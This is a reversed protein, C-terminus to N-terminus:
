QPLALIFEQSQAPANPGEATVTVVYATPTGEMQPNHGTSGLACGVLGVSCAAIIWLCASRV